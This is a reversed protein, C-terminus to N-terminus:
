RSRSRALPWVETPGSLAYLLLAMSSVLEGGVAFLAVIKRPFRDAVSGTVLVLLFAPLFEALGILGIDLERGTMDYAQKALATAQLSIGAFLALNCVFLRRVPPFRWVAGLSPLVTASSPSSQSPQDM